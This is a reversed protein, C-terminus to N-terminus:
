TLLRTLSSLQCSASLVDMLMHSQKSETLLCPIVLLNLPILECDSHVPDRLPTELMPLHTGIPHPAHLLPSVGPPHMTHSTATEEQFETADQQWLVLGSAALLLACQFCLMDTPESMTGPPTEPFVADRASSRRESNKHATNKSTCVSGVCVPWTGYCLEAPGGRPL